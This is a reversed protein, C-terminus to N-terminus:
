IKNFWDSISNALLIVYKRLTYNTTDIKMLKLIEEYINLAELNITVSTQKLDPNTKVLELIHKLLIVSLMESLKMNAIASEALHRYSFSQVIDLSDNQAIAINIEQMYKTAIDQINM